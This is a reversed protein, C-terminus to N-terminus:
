QILRAQLVFREDDNAGSCTSLTLIRDYATVAIGLDHISEYSFNDLWHAWTATNPYNILTYPFSIHAVYFAFIEWQYDAYLTRFNIIPHARLFDYNQFHRISHFMINEAMNHGYIVMNHDSGRIDVEYDLFFGVLVLLNGM